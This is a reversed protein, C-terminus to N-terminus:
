RCLETVPATLPRSDRIVRGFELGVRLPLRNRRNVSAIQNSWWGRRIDGCSIQGLDGSPTPTRYADRESLQLDTSRVLTTMFWPM